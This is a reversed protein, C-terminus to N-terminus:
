LQLLSIFKKVRDYVPDKLDGYRELVANVWRPGHTNVDKVFCELEGVPVIFLNHKKTVENIRKFAQVSPGSPIAEKGYRKLANWPSKGKLMEKIQHVEVESYYKSEPSQKTIKDIKTLIEDKPRASMESQRNIEDYLVQYDESISSWDIHCSRCIKEFTPKTNLVDIDVIVKTDVGLSSLAKMVVPVRQKGGSYSFFTDAYNGNERQLFDNIIAYFRCDSDSECLVVNKFFLGELVNSYKLIPDSWVREIDIANLVFVHNQNKERTVRVIKVRDPATDLLGHILQESHTSIFVQKNGQTLEGIMQGMIKAQPPHLFAEPEDILYVKYFDLILYLLIGIFSKVGDGQEHAMPYKMLEAAYAETRETEDNFDEKKLQIMKDTVVLPIEKGYWINPVIKKHFAMNFYKSFKKRVEPSFALYHIPHTKSDNPTISEAPHCVSLRTETNLDCVFLDRLDRHNECAEGMTYEINDFNIYGGMVYYQNMQRNYSGIDKILEKIKNINGWKYPHIRKLITSPQDALGNYIDKLTQSKGVNNPGVFIVIDNKNIRDIKTDDNFDIESLCIGPNDETHDIDWKM